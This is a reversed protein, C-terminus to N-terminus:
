FPQHGPRSSRLKIRHASVNTDQKRRNGQTSRERKVVVNGVGDIGARRVVCSASAITAPDEGRSRSPKVWDADTKRDCADSAAEHQNGLRPTASAL